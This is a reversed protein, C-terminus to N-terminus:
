KEYTVFLYNCDHDESFHREINSLRFDDLSDFPFYTDANDADKLFITSYIKNVYPM